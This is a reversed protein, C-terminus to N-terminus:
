IDLEITILMWILLISKSYCIQEIFILKTRATSKVEKESDTSSSTSQESISSSETSSKDISLRLLNSHIDHWTTIAGVLKKTVDDCVAETSQYRNVPSSIEHTLILVM